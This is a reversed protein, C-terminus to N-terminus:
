RYAIIQPVAQLGDRAPTFRGRLAFHVGAQAPTGLLFYGGNTRLADFCMQLIRIPADLAAGPTEMVLTLSLLRSEAIRAPVLNESM